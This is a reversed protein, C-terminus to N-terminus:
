KAKAAIMRAFLVANLWLAQNLAFASLLPPPFLRSAKIRTEKGGPKRLFEERRQAKANNRKKRNTTRSFGNKKRGIEAAM